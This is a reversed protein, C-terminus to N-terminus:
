IQSFFVTRVLITAATRVAAVTSIMLAQAYWGIYKSVDAPSFLPVCLTLQQAFTEKLRWKRISDVELFEVLKPLLIARKEPKIIQMFQFLHNLVGEQVEEIDKLFGEFIPCLDESALESGLIIAVEHFSKAVTRRITYAAHGTM